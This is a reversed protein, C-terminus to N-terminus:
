EEESAKWQEVADDVKSEVVFAVAKITDIIDELGDQVTERVSEVKEEGDKILESAKQLSDDKSWEKEAKRIDEAIKEKIEEKAQKVAERKKREEERAELTQMKKELQTRTKIMDDLKERKSRVREEIMKTKAERLQAELSGDTNEIRHKQFDLDKQDRGISKEMREIAKILGDYRRKVRELPNGKGVADKGFKEKKVRKFLGDLQKWVRSRHDRTFKTDRFKKQVDKLENFLPQLSMGDDVKKEIKDLIEKFNQRHKESMEHFEEDLQRRMKKLEAFLENTHQRLSNAHERFLNREQVQEQVKSWFGKLEEWLANDFKDLNELRAKFEELESQYAKHMKASLIVFNWETQARKLIDDRDVKYGEPLMSSTISLPVTKKEHSEPFLLDKGVRWSNHMQQAFDENIATEAFIYTDVNSNDEDLELGLLVKEESPNTGWFVLRTRM